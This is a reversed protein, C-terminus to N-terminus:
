PKPTPINMGKILLQLEEQASRYKDKYYDRSDKYSNIANELHRIQGMLIGIRKNQSEIIAKNFYINGAVWAAFILLVAGIFYYIM